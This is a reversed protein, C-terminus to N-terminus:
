RGDQHTLTKLVTFPIIFMLVEGQNLGLLTITDRDLGVVLQLGRYAQHRSSLCSLSMNGQLGPLKLM